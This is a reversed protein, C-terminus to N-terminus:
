KIEIQQVNKEEKAKKPLTLELIGDKYAAQINSTDIGKVDFSRRFSGYHREKHIYGDKEHDAEQKHEAHIVMQDNKIDIKINEKKFGPLEAELLFHDGEDKIDTRIHFLKNSVDDGFFRHHFADFYDALQESRKDFPILDFMPFM